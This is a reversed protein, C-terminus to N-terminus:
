FNGPSTQGVVWFMHLWRLVNTFSKLSDNCYVNSKLTINDKSLFEKTSNDTFQILRQHRWIVQSLLLLMLPNKMLQLVSESQYHLQFMGVAGEPSSGYFVSITNTPSRIVQGEVLLTQNALVLLAGGEDVGRISLQEGESLNVSKM